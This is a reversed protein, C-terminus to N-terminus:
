QVVDFFLEEVGLYELLREICDPNACVWWQGHRRFAILYKVKILRYGVKRTIFNRDCWERLTVVYLQESDDIRSIPRHAQTSNGMFASGGIKVTPKDEDMM